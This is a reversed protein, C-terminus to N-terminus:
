VSSAQEGSTHVDVLIVFNAKLNKTARESTPALCVGSFLYDRLRTIAGRHMVGLENLPM